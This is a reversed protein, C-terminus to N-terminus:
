FIGTKYLDLVCDFPRSLDPRRDPAAVLFLGRARDRGFITGAAGVTTRVPADTFLCGEAAELIMDAGTEDSAASVNGDIGASPAGTCGLGRRWIGTAADYSFSCPGLVATEVPESSLVGRVRLSLVMDCGRQTCLAEIVSQDMTLASANGSRSAGLIFSAAGIRWGEALTIRGNEVLYAESASFVFKGSTIDM